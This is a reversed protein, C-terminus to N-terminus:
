RSQSKSGLSVEYRKGKEIKMEVKGLKNLIVERNLKFVITGDEVFVSASFIPM